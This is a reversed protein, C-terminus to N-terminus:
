MTPASGSNVSTEHNTPRSHGLFADRPNSSQSSEVDPAESRPERREAAQKGKNSAANQGQPPTPTKGKSNQTQQPRPSPNPIYREAPKKSPQQPLRPPYQQMLHGNYQYAHGQTPGFPPMFVNPYGYLANQAMQVPAIHAAPLSIQPPGATSQLHSIRDLLNQQLHQQKLDSIERSHKMEMSMIDMKHLLNEYRSDNNPQTHQYPQSTPMEQAPPMPTTSPRTSVLLKQQLVRREEELEKVRDELM